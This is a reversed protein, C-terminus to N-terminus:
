LQQELARKVIALIVILSVAEGNPGTFVEEIKELANRYRDREDKIQELQDKYYSKKM